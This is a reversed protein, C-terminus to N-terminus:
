FGKKKLESVIRVYTELVDFGKYDERTLDIINGHSIGKYYRNTFTGQFEGWRASEETVLGDNDADVMRIFLYPISLLIHSWAHHMLSMYSQYYVQPDDLIEENFGASWQTTFQHTVTYFDPHVDKMRTFAADFVSALWRYLKEPAIRVLVDVFHCGRHPTSITTLSAVHAGMHGKSIAHRADLGGKSHAIINVKDCHELECIEKIRKQIDASNNEITAFAEQNGYYIVAGNKALIRPIRGWYNVYKLDRFGVGHLLLLPYKTKCIQSEARQSAVNIAVTEHDYEEKAKHMLYILVPIRLVPIFLLIWLMVRRLIRLRNSLCFIVLAGMLAYVYQFLLMWLLDAYYWSDNNYEPLILLYLLIQLLLLWFSRKIVAKGYQLGRLRRHKRGLSQILRLINIIFILILIGASIMIFGIDSYGKLLWRTNLQHTLLPLHSLMLLLLVGMCNKIYRM